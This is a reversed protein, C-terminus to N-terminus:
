RRFRCVKRSQKGVPSNGLARSFSLPFLDKDLTLDAALRSHSGFVFHIFGAGVRIILRHKHLVVAAVVDHALTSKIPNRLRVHRAVPWCSPPRSSSLIPPLSLRCSTRANSLILECYSGHCPLQQVTACARMCSNHLSIYIHTCKCIYIYYIHIRVYIHM